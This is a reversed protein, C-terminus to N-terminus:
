KRGDVEQFFDTRWKSRRSRAGPCRAGPPLHISPRNTGHHSDSGRLNLSKGQTGLTMQMLNKTLPGSDEFCIDWINLIDLPLIWHSIPFKHLDNNNADLVGVHSAPFIWDEDM